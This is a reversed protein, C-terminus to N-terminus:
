ISPRNSIASAIMLQRWLQGCHPAANQHSGGGRVPSDLTPLSHWTHRHPELISVPFRSHTCRLESSRRVYKQDPLKAIGATVVTSAAMAPYKTRHYSGYQIIATKKPAKPKIVPNIQEDNKHSLLPSRTQAENCRVRSAEGACADIRGYRECLM